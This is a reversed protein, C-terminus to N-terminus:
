IDSLLFSLNLTAICSALSRIALQPALIQVLIQDEQSLAGLMEKINSKTIDKWPEM